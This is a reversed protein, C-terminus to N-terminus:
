EQASVEIEVSLKGDVTSKNAVNCKTIKPTTPKSTYPYVGGYIGVETGDNGLYTSKIDDSLEYSLFDANFSSTSISTDKFISINSRISTNNSGSCSYFINNSGGNWGICNYASNTNHLRESSPIISNWFVSNTCSSNPSLISNYIQANSIDSLYAIVSNLIQSSQITAYTNNRINDIRCNKCTLFEINNYNQNRFTKIYCREVNLNYVKGNQFIIFLASLDEIQLRQITDTFAIESKIYTAEGYINDMGAGRLTISKSINTGNFSGSSLTIIDGDEAASVASALANSNYFHTIEGNHDLTAMLPSQAPAIIVSIILLISFILHKM